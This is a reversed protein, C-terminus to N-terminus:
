RRVKAWAVVLVGLVALGGMVWPDLGTVVGLVAYLALGFGAGVGTNRLVFIMGVGLVMSPIAILWAFGVCGGALTALGVGGPLRSLGLLPWNHGAIAAALAPLALPGEAGVAHALAVAAAGKGADAVFVLVGWRRGVRRFVNATGAIRTDVEGIAIGKRRAALYAWPLSGLLYGAVISIAVAAYVPM